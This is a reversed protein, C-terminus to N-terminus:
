REEAKLWPALEKMDLTIEPTGLAGPAVEYKDFCIVISGNKDVYFNQDAEISSFGGDVDEAVNDEKESALWFSGKEKKNARRMEGRVAESIVKVYNARPNFFHALTVPMGTQRDFNLILRREASSGASEIEVVDLTFYRTDGDIVKYDMAYETHVSSEAFPDSTLEIAAAEFKEAFARGKKMLSLNIENQMQESALGFLCPTVIRAESGGLKAEYVSFTAAQVNIERALACSPLLFLALAAACLIKKACIMARIAHFFNAHFSNGSFM